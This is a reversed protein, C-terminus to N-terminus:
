RLFATVVYEIAHNAQQIIPQPSLGLVLMAVVFSSVAVWESWNLHIAHKQVAPGEEGFIIRRVLSLMYVAGFLIGLSAVLSVAPSSKFAGALILFEGVFGPLGPLGISAMTSFVFMSALVGAKIAIGGHASIERTHTRDYIIGFILFLAGTSLGHALNQFMAGQISEKQLAFLGIVMFGMHSVSSYAILRKIDTQKWAAFAGMLVGVCGLMMMTPAAAQSAEPFIPLCWRVMGYVGLKLLVGALIVSGATPAETHADPLWTHFPWLPIKVVFAAMFGLFLLGHLSAWGDFPLKLAAIDHWGLTPLQSQFALALIAALMLLSGAMTFAFFKLTAYIRGKGGWIGILFYLPILMFEWFIYFALVDAALLSGVSAGNLFSFLALFSAGLEKKSLSYFALVLSLFVNLAILPASLGDVALSLSSKFIPLWEWSFVIPFTASQTGPVAEPIQKLASFLLGLWVFNFVLNAWRAWSAKKYLLLLFLGSVMPWLILYLFSM